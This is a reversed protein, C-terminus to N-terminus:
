RIDNGHGHAGSRDIRHGLSGARQEDHGIPRDHHQKRTRHGRRSEGGHWGYYGRLGDDDRFPQFQGHYELDAGDILVVGNNVQAITNNTLLVNIAVAAGVGVKGSNNAQGTATATDIEDTVAALTINKGGADVTSTSGAGPDFGVEANTANTIINLAVAGAVGVNGGGAGATATATYTDTPNNSGTM